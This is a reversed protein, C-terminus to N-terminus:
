HPGGLANRGGELRPRIYWIVFRQRDDIEQQSPRVLERSEVVRALRKAHNAQLIGALVERVFEQRTEVVIAEPVNVGDPIEAHKAVLQSCGIVVLFFINRM